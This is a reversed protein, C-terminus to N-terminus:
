CYKARCSLVGKRGPSSGLRHAKPQAMGQFVLKHSAINLKNELSNQWFNHVNASRSSVEKFARFESAFIICLPCSPPFNERGYQGHIAISQGKGLQRDCVAECKERQHQLVM